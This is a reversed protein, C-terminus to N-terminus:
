KVPLFLFLLLLLLLNNIVKLIIYLKKLRFSCKLYKPHLPCVLKNELSVKKVMELQFNKNQSHNRKRVQGCNETAQMKWAIEPIPIM